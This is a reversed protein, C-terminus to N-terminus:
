RPQILDSAASLPARLDARIRDALLQDDDDARKMAAIVQDRLPPESQSERAPPGGPRAAQWKEDLDHVEQNARM